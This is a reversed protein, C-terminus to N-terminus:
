NFVKHFNLNQRYMYLRGAFPLLKCPVLWEGLFCSGAWGYTLAMNDSSDFISSVKSHFKLESGGIVM